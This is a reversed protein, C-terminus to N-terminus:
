INQIIIKKNNKNKNQNLKKLLSRDQNIYEELNNQYIKIKQSNIKETHIDKIKDSLDNLLENQLSPLETLDIFSLIEERNQLLLFKHTNKIYYKTLLYVANNFNNIKFLNDSNKLIFYELNNKEFDNLSNYFTNCNDNITKDVVKYKHIIREEIINSYDRHEKKQTFDIKAKIKKNISNERKFLEGHIFYCIFTSIITVLMFQINIFFSIFIFSLLLYEFFDIINKVKFNYKNNYYSDINSQFINLKKHLNKLNEISKYKIQM